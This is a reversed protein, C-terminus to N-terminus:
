PTQVKFIFYTIQEGPEVLVHHPTGAPIHVVDGEALRQLTGGEITTGRVEGPETEEGNLITGGVVLSANGSAVFYVDAWNAHSESFGPGPERHVIAAFYNGYDIVRDLVAANNAGTQAALSRGLNDLQFASWYRYDATEQALLAPVMLLGATLGSFHHRHRRQMLPSGKNVPTPDFASLSLLDPPQAARDAPRPTPRPEHAVPAAM